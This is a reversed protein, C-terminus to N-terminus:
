IQKSNTREERLNAIGRKMTASFGDINLEKLIRCRILVEFSQKHLRLSKFHHRGEDAKDASGLQIEKKLCDVM